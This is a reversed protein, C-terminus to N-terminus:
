RGVRGGSRREHIGFLIFAPGPLVEYRGGPWRIFSGGDKRPLNGICKLSRPELLLPLPPHPPGFRGLHLTLDLPTPALFVHRPGWKAGGQCKGLQNQPLADGTSPFPPLADHYTLNSPAVDEDRARDRRRQLPTCIPVARGNSRRIAKIGNPRQRSSILM